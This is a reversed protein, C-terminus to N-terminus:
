ETVRLDISFADFDAGGGGFRTNVHLQTMDPNAAQSGPTVWRFHNLDDSNADDFSFLAIASGTSSNSSNVSRFNATTGSTITYFAVYKGAPASVQRTGSTGVPFLM